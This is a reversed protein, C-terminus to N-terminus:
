RIILKDRSLRLKASFTIIFSIGFDLKWFQSGSKRKGRATNSGLVKPLPALCWATPQLTKSWEAM